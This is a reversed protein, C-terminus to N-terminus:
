GYEAVRLDGDQTLRWSGRPAGVCLSPPCDLSLIPAIELGRHGPPSHAPHIPAGGGEPLHGPGTQRRACRGAPSTSPTPQPCGTSTPLAWCAQRDPGDQIAVSGPPHVACGAGQGPNDQRPVQAVAIRWHSGAWLCGLRCRRPSLGWHGPRFSRRPRGRVAPHQCRCHCPRPALPTEVRRPRSFPDAPPRRHPQGHSPLPDGSQIHLTRTHHPGYPASRFRSIGPTGRPRGQHQLLRM